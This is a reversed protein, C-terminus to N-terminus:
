NLLYSKTERTIQNTIKAIVNGLIYSIPYCCAVGCLYKWKNDNNLFCYLHALGIFPTIDRINVRHCSNTEDSYGNAFGQASSLVFGAKPDTPKFELYDEISAATLSINNLSLFLGTGLLYTKFQM